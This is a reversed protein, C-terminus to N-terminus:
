IGRLKNIIKFTSLADYFKCKGVKFFSSITDCGSFAYFFPLADCFELGVNSCLFKTDYM